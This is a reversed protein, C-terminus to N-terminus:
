YLYGKPNTSGESEIKTNLWNIKKYFFFIKFFCWNEYNLPDVKECLPTQNYSNESSIAFPFPCVVTMKVGSESKAGMVFKLYENGNGFPSKSLSYCSIFILPCIKWGVCVM